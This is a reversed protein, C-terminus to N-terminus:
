VEHLYHQYIKVTSFSNLENSYTIFPYFVYSINFEIIIVSIYFVILFWDMSYQKM